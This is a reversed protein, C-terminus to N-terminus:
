EKGKGRKAPRTNLYLSNTRTPSFGSGSAIGPDGQTRDTKGTGLLPLAELRAVPSLGIELSTFLVLELHEEDPTCEV